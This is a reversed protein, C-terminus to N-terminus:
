RNTNVHVQLIKVTEAKVTPHKKHAWIKDRAMKSSKKLDVIPAPYNVGVSVGCFVQEMMSMTWPEHIYAEPINKLEPLWKKIFVGKPDLEKSNKVPNYLRVTNIGTTGAQMQFQPYHIGPDYDLFLRSLHYTGLRWDQDLNLTFFSVLMARMRFNIWGTKHLARMFADVLPYGTTGDEWSKIFFDNKKHSLLEYGINICHTEYSCAVEFKQILHCHWYLRTLVGSFASDNATGNPHAGVFQFVQKISINGWALYPSLRSCSIRSETPKSINRHYNFGRKAAFSQLYRWAYEEGAPQLDKPYNVWDLRLEEPIQFPHQLPELTALSYENKLIPAHMTKHWSQNWHDRNKLGRIIGDRQFEQWFIKHEECFLKVKKDRNWTLRIGSEQYSFIKKIEFLSNLYELVKPVEEYFVEVRRKFNALKKNLDLISHYQFQLHRKSTDPYRMCSPEFAFIILYPIKQKEAKHMSRHDQWRLDRKLWVINVAQKIL